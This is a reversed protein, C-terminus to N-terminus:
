LVDQKFLIEMFFRVPPVSQLPHKLIKITKYQHTILQYLLIKPVTIKTRSLFSKQM